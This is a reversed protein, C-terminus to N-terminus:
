IDMVPITYFFFLRALFIYLISYSNFSKRFDGITKGVTDGINYMLNFILVAWTGNMNMKKEFTLAPFLMFTIIFDVAIYVPYPNIAKFTEFM